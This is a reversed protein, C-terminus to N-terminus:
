QKAKGDKKPAVTTDELELGLEAAQKLMEENFADQGCPLLISAFSVPALISSLVSPRQPQTTHQRKRQTADKPKTIQPSARLCAKTQKQPTPATKKAADAM